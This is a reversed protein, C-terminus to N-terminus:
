RQAEKVLIAAGIMGADSALKAKFIKVQGAPVSMARQAIVEKLREFLRRHAKAIGGGIVICDPNLLNVVAALALGLRSGVESWVQLALRNGRSALRSLEELSINKGLITRARSEISRNGIYAELCAWGGCNCRPGDENLPLHGIEGSVNGAGRYLRGDFVLGAGVGTGLTLCVASRAGRAAGLTYEALSMLKADNDLVVPLGLRKELISKLSVEEWGPINPLFHVIGREYDVPGPLGMGVGLIDKRTLRNDKMLQRVELVINRILSSKDPFGRTNFLRRQKIRFKADILALKLNTGGLDIGIFFGSKMIQKNYVFAAKIALSNKAKL